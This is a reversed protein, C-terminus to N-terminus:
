TYTELSSMEVSSSFVIHKVHFEQMVELIVQTGTVNNSFYKLPNDVSERGLSLAAFHMLSDIKETRFIRQLLEKDRIDGEYFRAKKNVAVKYGTCLNDLVVVDFNQEVLSDVANSGIYGAGGLVLVAM